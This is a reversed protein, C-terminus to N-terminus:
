YNNFIRRIIIIIMIGELLILQKDSTGTLPEDNVVGTVVVVVVVVIVVVVIVVVIIIVNIIINYLSQVKETLLRWQILKNRM